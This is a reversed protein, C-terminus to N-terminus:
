IRKRTMMMAFGFTCSCESTSRSRSRNSATCNAFEAVSGPEMIDGRAYVVLESFLELDVYLPVGWQSAVGVCGEIDERSLRRYGAQQLIEECLSLIPSSDPLEAEENSLSEPDVGPASSATAPEIDAAVTPVRGDGDPDVSAYLNSFRRHYSGTREQQIRDILDCFRRFAVTEDPAMEDRGILYETLSQTTLPIFPEISWHPADDRIFGSTSADGLSRTLPGSGGLSFEIM